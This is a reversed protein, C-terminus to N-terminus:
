YVPRSTVNELVLKEQCSSEDEKGSDTINCVRLFFNKLDVTKKQKGSGKTISGGTQQMLYQVSREGVFKQSVLVRSPASCGSALFCVAGLAFICMIKSFSM